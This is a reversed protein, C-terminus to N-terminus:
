CPVDNSNIQFNPLEMYDINSRTDFAPPLEIPDPGPAETNIDYYENGYGSYGINIVRGGGDYRTEQSQGAHRYFPTHPDAELSRQESGETVVQKRSIVSKSVFVALIIIIAIMFLTAIIIAVTLTTLLIIVTDHGDEHGSTDNGTVTPSPSTSTM